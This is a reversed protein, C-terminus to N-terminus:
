DRSGSSQEDASSADAGGDFLSQLLRILERQGPGDDPASLYDSIEIQETGANTQGRWRVDAHAWEHEVYLRKTETDFVLRWWDEDNM